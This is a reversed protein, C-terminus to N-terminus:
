PRGGTSRDFYESIATEFNRMYKEADMLPSKVLRDRMSRRNEALAALESIKGGLKALWDAESEAIWDGLGAAKLISAGARGAPSPYALSLVPVGMWLSECSTTGGACPFTDLSIDIERYYALGDVYPQPPLFEVRGGVGAAAFFAALRQMPRDGWILLRLRTNPFSQLARAYLSLVAPNLKAANHFAGLMVEGRGPAPLEGVAPLNEDPAYCWQSDPLWLLEESFWGACSEPVATRDSIRFDVAPLGCTSMYGLMTGQVGAPHRELLGMRNGATLGCLDILVDVGRTQMAAAAQEDSQGAIEHWGDVAGRFESTFPDGPPEPKTSYVTVSFRRRDHNKLLPRAFFRMAHARLDGSLFALQLRDGRRAILPPAALKPRSAAWAQHEALIRAGDPESYVLSFLRGTEALLRDPTGAPALQAARGYHNLAEAHEGFRLAIAALLCHAGANEPAVRLQQQYASWAEDIRELEYLLDALEGWAAAFGPARLLLDNLVLLAEAHRGLTRLLRAHGHSAAILGPDLAQARVYQELAEPLRDGAKLAHAFNVRFAAAAPRLAVASGLLEIALTSNGTQHALLGRYHLLDPNDPQAQQLAEYRPLVADFDGRQHLTIAQAFARAFDPTRCCDTLKRGSGCPCGIHKPLVSRRSM